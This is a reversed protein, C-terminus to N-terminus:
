HLGLAEKLQDHAAKAADDLSPAQKTFTVHAGKYVGDVDIRWGPRHAGSNANYIENGSYTARVAGVGLIAIIPELQPLQESVNEIGRLKKNRAM